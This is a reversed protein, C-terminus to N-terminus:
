WYVAYLMFAPVAFLAWGNTTYIMAAFIAVCVLIVFFMAVAFLLFMVTGVWSPELDYTWEIYNDIYDFM